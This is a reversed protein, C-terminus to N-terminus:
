ALGAVKLFANEMDPKLGHAHVMMRVARATGQVRYSTGIDAFKCYLSSGKARWKWSLSMKRAAYLRSKEERRKEERRKEERKKEERRKEERRKMERKKERRKMKERRQDQSKKEDKEKRTKEEREKDSEKRM